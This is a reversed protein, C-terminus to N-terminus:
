LVKMIILLFTAGAIIEDGPLIDILTLSFIIGVIVLKVYFPVPLIGKGQNILAM